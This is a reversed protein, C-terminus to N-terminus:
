YGKTDPKRRDSEHPQTPHELDPPGTTSAEIVTDGEASRTAPRKAKGAEEKVKARKWAPRRPRGNEATLRAAPTAASGLRRDEEGEGGRCLEGCTRAATSNLSEVSSTFRRREQSGDRRKRAWRGETSMGKTRGSGSGVDGGSREAELQWARLGTGDERNKVAGVPEEARLDRAQQM